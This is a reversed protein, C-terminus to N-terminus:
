ITYQLHIDYPELEKLAKCVWQTDECGLGMYFAQSAKSPHGSIYLYKAGKERAEDISVQFMLKGLGQNRYEHSVQISILQIYEENPDLFHGAIALYAIVADNDYIAYVHGGEEIIERLEVAEEEKKIEDWDDKYKYDILTKVGDKIIWAQNTEQYRNFAKLFDKSIENTNILRTEYIKDKNITM